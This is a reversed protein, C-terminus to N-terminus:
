CQSDLLRQVLIVPLDVDAMQLKAITYILNDKPLRM